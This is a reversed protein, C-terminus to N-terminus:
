VHLQKGSPRTWAGIGTKRISRFSTKRKAVCYIKSSNGLRAGLSPELSTLATSLRAMTTTSSKVRQMLNFYTM